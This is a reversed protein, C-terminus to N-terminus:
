VPVYDRAPEEFPNKNKPMWICMALGVFYLMSLPIAMLLLSLPDQPTLFMSVVFIIMIAIRWKSVYDSVQVLGIRNLFLMVLPLQFATGFGLPMFMVFSLWDSIRMQPVIGMQRNFSFLFDLVPDFVFLFALLVGCVFLFISIPLYLHVYKQEHPYLGAAVFTWLQYFVLPAAFTLGTLVGAKLWVMFTETVGLSQPQIDSREWIDIPVLNLKPEKMEVTFMKALLARNLRVALQPDGTADYRDKLNALLNHTPPIIFSTWTSAPESVDEHFEEFEFFRSERTLRNLIEMLRAAESDTLEGKEGWRRIEDQENETLLSWLRTNRTSAEGPTEGSRALNQCLQPIEETLFDERDFRYPDVKIHEAFDPMLTQLAAVLQTPDVYQQRPLMRERQVWPVIEPDVFGNRRELEDIANVQAYKNLARILPGTLMHVVQNALIFGFICGVAISLLSKIFVKRLEELHEGFSMRSSEFLDENPQRLNM